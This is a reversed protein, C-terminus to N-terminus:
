PEVGLKKLRDQTIHLTYATGISGQLLKDDSAMRVVYMDPGVRELRGGEAIMESTVLAGTATRPASNDVSLETISKPNDDFVEEVMSGSVGVPAAFKRDNLTQIGGFGARGGLVMDVADDANTTAGAAIVALAASQVAAKTSRHLAENNLAGFVASGISFQMEKKPMGTTIEILNNGENLLKQQGLLINTATTLYTQDSAVGAGVFAMLPNVKALEHLAAVANETTMNETYGKIFSLQEDSSMDPLKVGIDKLEATTHFQRPKGYKDSGQVMLAERANMSSPSGQDLPTFSEPDIKQMWDVYNKDTVERMNELVKRATDWEVTSLDSSAADKEADEVVEQLDSRSLDTLGQLTENQTFAEKVSQQVRPSANGLNALIVLVDPDKSLDVGNRLRKDVRGFAATVTTDVVAQEQREGTLTKSLVARAAALTKSELVTAGDDIVDQELGAVVEELQGSPLKMWTRVAEGVTRANFHMENTLPDNVQAVLDNTRSMSASDPIEGRAWRTLVRRVSSQADGIARNREVRALRDETEFRRKKAVGAKGLQAFGAGTLESAPRLSLIQDVREPTVAQSLQGSFQKFRLIKVEERLFEEKLHNPLGTNQIERSRADLTINYQEDTPTEFVVNGATARNGIFVNVENKSRTASEFITSKEVITNRTRSLDLQMAARVRDNPAAALQNEVNKDYAALVTKTFDTANADTNEKAQRFLDAGFGQNDINAQNINANEKKIQNKELVAGFDTISKGAAQLGKGSGGFETATARRVSIPGPTKTPADFSTFKAM